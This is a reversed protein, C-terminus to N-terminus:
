VKFRARPVVYGLNRGHVASSHFMTTQVLIVLAQLRGPYLRDPKALFGFVDEITSKVQSRIRM